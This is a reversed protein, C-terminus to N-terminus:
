SEVKTVKGFVLNQSTWGNIHGKNNGIQFRNGTNRTQHVAKVLHVYFNGNVKCFVVDGKKVKNYDKIPEVVVLNGSEIIPQMSNGKPRFQVKQGKALNEVHEHWNM